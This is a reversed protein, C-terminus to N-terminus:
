RGARRLGQLSVTNNADFMRLGRPGYIETGAGMTGNNTDFGLDPGDSGAFDVPKGGATEDVAQFYGEWRPDPLPGLVHAMPNATMDAIRRDRARQQVAIGLPDTSADFGPGYPGQIAQSLGRLSTSM